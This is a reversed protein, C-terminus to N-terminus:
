ETPPLLDTLGLYSVKSPPIQKGSHIALATIVRRLANLEGIEEKFSAPEKEYYDLETPRLRELGSFLLGYVIRQEANNLTVTVPNEPEPTPEVDVSNREPVPNREKM